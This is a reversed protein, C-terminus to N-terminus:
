DQDRFQAPSKGTWRRFAKAFASEDSFGLEEAVVSIKGERQLAVEALSQLERDRLQKFSLGEEALRRNLHRGSLALLDAIREKGARPHQRILDSVSASLSKEGLQRLTNDALKRLHDRLASNAQILPLALMSKDFRLYNDPESFSVPCGLLGPYRHADHLAAHGFHISQAQFLGGTSWRSLHLIASLVAEVRQARCIDYIPTYSLLVSDSEYKVNVEGGEGIIPLYEFLVDLSEGYTECSMILMGAVDLHGVQLAMGLQIGILPDSAQACLEQWLADQVELPVREEIPPTDLPPLGLRQAAQILAQSFRLTVTPTHM